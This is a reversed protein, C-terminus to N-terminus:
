EEKEPAAILYAHYGGSVLLAIGCFMIPFLLLLWFMLLTGEPAKPAIYNYFVHYVKDWFIWAVLLLILILAGVISRFVHKAFNKDSKKSM